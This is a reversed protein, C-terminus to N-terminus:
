RTVEASVDYSGGVLRTVIGSSSILELDWVGNGTSLYSTTSAPVNFSIIGSAGTIVITGDSTSLSLITNSRYDPRFMARASYGTLNIPTGSPDKWTFTTNLTAGQEIVLDYVGASM